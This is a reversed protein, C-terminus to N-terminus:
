RLSRLIGTEDSGSSTIPDNARVRTREVQKGPFLKYIWIRLFGTGVGIGITVLLAVAILVFTSLVVWVIGHQPEKPAINIFTVGDQQSQAWVLLSTAKAMVIM